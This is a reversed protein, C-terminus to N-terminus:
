LSCCLLERVEEGSGVNQHGLPLMEDLMICYRVFYGVSIILLKGGM